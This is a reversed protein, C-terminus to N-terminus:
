SRVGEPKEEPAPTARPLLIQETSIRPTHGRSRSPPVVTLKLELIDHLTGPELAVSVLLRENAYGDLEHGDVLRLVNEVQFIWQVERRMGDLYTSLTLLDANGQATMKYDVAGIADARLRQTIAAVTAGRNVREGAIRQMYIGDVLMKSLVLMMILLASVAFLMEVLTFGRRPSMVLMM